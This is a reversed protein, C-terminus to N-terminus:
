TLSVLPTRTLLVSERPPRIVPVSIAIIMTNPWWSSMIWPWAIADGPDVVLLVGSDGNLLLWNQTM